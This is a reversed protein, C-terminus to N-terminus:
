KLNTLYNTKNDILYTYGFKECWQIFEKVSLYVKKPETQGTDFNQGNRWGMIPTRKTPHSFAVKRDILLRKEDWIYLPEVYYDVKKSLNLKIRKQKQEAQAQNKTKRNPYTRRRGQAFCLINRDLYYTLYHASKILNEKSKHGGIWRWRDVFYYLGKKSIKIEEPKETIFPYKTRVDEPIKKRIKSVVSDWNEGVSSRLIQDRTKFYPRALRWKNDWNRDFKDGYIKTSRFLGLKSPLEEAKQLNNVNVKM